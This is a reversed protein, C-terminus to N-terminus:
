GGEVSAMSTPLSFTPSFKLAWQRPKFTTDGSFMEFSLQLIQNFALVEPKGFPEASGPRASSPNSPIPTRQQQVATFSTASLIMFVHQGFVPYDGKFVSQDYPNLASGRRFNTLGAQGSTLSEM